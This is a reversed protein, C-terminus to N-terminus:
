IETEKAAVVLLEYTTSWLIQGQIICFNIIYDFLPKFHKRKVSFVRSLTLIQMVPSSIHHNIYSYVAHSSLKQLIENFKAFSNYNLFFTNGILKSQMPINYHIAKYYYTTNNLNYWLLHTPKSHLPQFLFHKPSNM